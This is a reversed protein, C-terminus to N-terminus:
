MDDFGFTWSDSIQIISHFSLFGDERHEGTPMHSLIHKKPNSPHITPKFIKEREVEHPIESWMNEGSKRPRPLFEAMILDIM